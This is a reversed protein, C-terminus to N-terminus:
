GSSSTVHAPLGQQEACVLAAAISSPTRHDSSRDTRCGTTRRRRGHGARLRRRRGPERPPPQPRLLRRDRALRTARQRGGPCPESLPTCCHRLRSSLCHYRRAPVTIAERGALCSTRRRGHTPRGRGLVASAPSTLASTAGCRDHSRRPSGRAVRQHAFKPPPPPLEGGTGRRLAFSSTPSAPRPPRGLGRSSRRSCSM